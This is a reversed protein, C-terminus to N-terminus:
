SLVIYSLMALFFEFTSLFVVFVIAENKSIKGKPIERIATRPNEADIEADAIRNFGMAASRAGVMAIIIWLVMSPTVPKVGLALVLGALAFPLAFLTHSLKIM